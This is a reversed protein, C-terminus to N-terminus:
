PSTTATEIQGVVFQAIAFASLIIILGIAGAALLSRAKGAKEEDGGATMWMFGGALVLVIAIIGLLGLLVRIITAITTRVDQSGLGTATGYELGLNLAFASAPVLTALSIGTAIFKKVRPTMIEGGKM